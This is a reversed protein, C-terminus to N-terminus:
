LCRCLKSIATHSAPGRADQPNIALGKRYLETALSLEGSQQYITGLNGYAEFFQPDLQIAKQYAETAATVQGINTLAIGLNYYLEAHSPDLNIAKQYSQASEQFRGLADLSMAHIHHLMFSDGYQKLLAKATQESKSYQQNQFLQILHNAEYASPEKSTQHKVRSM